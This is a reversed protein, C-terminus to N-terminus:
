TGQCQRVKIKAEVVVDKMDGTREFKTCYGAVHQYNRLHVSTTVVDLCM